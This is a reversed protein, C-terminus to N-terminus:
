PWLLHELEKLIQRRGVDSKVDVFTMNQRIFVTGASFTNFDTHIIYNQWILFYVPGFLRM